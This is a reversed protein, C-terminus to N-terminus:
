CCANSSPTLNPDDTIICEQVTGITTEDSREKRAKKKREVFKKWVQIAHLASKVRYLEMHDTEDYIEEQLLEEVCDELTVIGMVAAGSPIPEGITLAKEAIEPRACVVALHGSGAVSAKGGGRSSFDQFLNILDVLNITPPVVHPLLLPLTTVQRMDRSNVVMLQKTLLVGIFATKGDSAADGPRSLFVPVRSYGSSYIEIISEETLITDAPISFVNRIPTYIDMARKTKLHLAGEMINVEDIHLSEQRLDGFKERSKQQNNPKYTDMSNYNCIPAGDAHFRATSLGDTTKYCCAESVYLSATGTSVNDKKRRKKFALREEYQIRVMASLEARSFVVEEGHQHDLLIDLMKAIPVAIPYFICMLFRVLPTLKSALEIKNSGTFVASPIIEGFFLVLTVSLLIAMFAPVLEDLFLPLAENAISNLILLTVLLQHRKRVIPLLSSAQLRETETTGIRMKVLLDMSNISLLGLTLGAALAALSVCLLAMCSNFVINGIEDRRNKTTEESKSQEENQEELHRRRHHEDVNNDYLSSPVCHPFFPALHNSTPHCLGIIGWEAELTWLLERLDTTVSQNKISTRFFSSSLTATSQKARLETGLSITPLSLYLTWLLCRM